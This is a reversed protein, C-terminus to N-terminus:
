IENPIEFKPNRIEPKAPRHRRAETTEEGKAWNKRAGRARIQKSNSHAFRSHLRDLGRDDRDHGVEDALHGAGNGQSLAHDTITWGRLRGLFQGPEQGIGLVM